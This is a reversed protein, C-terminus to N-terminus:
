SVRREWLHNGLPVPRYGLMRLYDYSDIRGGSRIIQWESARFLHRRLELCEVRLIGHEDIWVRLAILEPKRAILRRM